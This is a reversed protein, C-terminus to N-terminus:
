LHFSDDKLEVAEDLSEVVGLAARFENDLHILWEL